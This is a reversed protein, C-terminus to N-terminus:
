QTCGGPNAFSGASAWGPLRWSGWVSHPPGAPGSRRVSTADLPPGAEIAARYSGAVAASGADIWHAVIEGYRDTEPMQVNVECRM